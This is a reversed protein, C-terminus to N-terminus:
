FFFINELDIPASFALLLEKSAKGFVGQKTFITAYEPFAPVSDLCFFRVLQLLCSRVGKSYFKSLFREGEL